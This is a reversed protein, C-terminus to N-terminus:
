RDPEGGEDSDEAMDEGWGDLGYKAM